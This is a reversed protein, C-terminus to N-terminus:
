QAVERKRMFHRWVRVFLARLPFTILWFRWYCGYFFSRCSRWRTKRCFDTVVALIREPLVDTECIYNADGRCCFTGNESRAVIRHLLYKGTIHRFFVVDGRRLQQPASIRVISKRDLLMPRMSRGTATLEAASGNQILESILPEVEEISIPVNKVSMRVPGFEDTERQNGM